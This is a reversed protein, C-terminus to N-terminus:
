QAGAQKHDFRTIRALEEPSIVGRRQRGDIIWTPYDRINADLCRLNIRGSRGEPTCEVYPLRHVSAGFLEKQDQCVPCWYAGYFLAGRESLYTALAMLFPDEPGAKPDFLGGFHLTLVLVAAASMGVPWPLSRQWSHEPLHTPRRVLLLILISNIIAFSALCYICTAEIQVVSVVTLYWSVGAAVSAVLLAGRWASPRSRLRWLFRALVLYTLLGWVAMPVGLLTSWRSSQVLDCSSDAGCYAPHQGFLANFSLYATLLAGAAVLALLVPDLWKAPAVRTQSRSPESAHRPPSASEPPSSAAKTEPAKRRKPAGARKRKRSM